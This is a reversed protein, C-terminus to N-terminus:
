STRSVIGEILTGNGPRSVIHLCGGIAKMRYHMGALGRSGIKASTTTDFGIGDDSIQLRIDTPRVVLSVRVVKAQAYKQVNTLAEQALRYLALGVDPPVTVEDIHVFVELQSREAFAEVMARLAPVLGLHQLASPRLAEILNRKLTIGSNLTEALQNLKERVPEPSNKLLSRLSSLDLKAMTLLAGLEDHLERAIHSREQETMAQLYAALAALEATRKQVELDLEARAKEKEIVRDAERKAISGYFHAYYFFTILSLATTVAVAVRVWGAIQTWRERMANTKMDHHLRLAQIDTRLDKMKQQGLDTGLVAKSANLLGKKQLHITIDLEALKSSMTRSILSFMALGEPDEEFANQLRNLIKPIGQVAAEYPQLYATKDTLLYGRQSTEADSALYMLNLLDSKTEDQQSILAAEKVIQRYGYESVVLVTLAVVACVFAGFTQYKSALQQLFKKKWAMM